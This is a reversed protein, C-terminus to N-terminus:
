TCNSLISEIRLLIKLYKEFQNLNDIGYEPTLMLSKPFKRDVKIYVREGKLKKNLISDKILNELCNKKGKLIFNKRIEPSDKEQIKFLLRQLKNRPFIELEKTNNELFLIIRYPETIPTAGGIENLNFSFKKGDIEIKGKKPQYTYRGIPSSFETIENESYKGGYKETLENILNM